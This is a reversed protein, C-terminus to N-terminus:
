RKASLRKYNARVAIGAPKLAAHLSQEAALGTLMAPTRGAILDPWFSFASGIMSMQAAVIGEAAAAAKESVAKASEGTWSTMSRAESAMLPMRMMMVMPALM